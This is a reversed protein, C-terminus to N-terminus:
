KLIAPWNVVLTIPAPKSDQTSRNVLFRGDSGIDYPFTRRGFQTRFVEHYVEGMGGTGILDLIEYIGLRVGALLPM